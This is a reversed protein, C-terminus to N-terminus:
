INEWFLENINFRIKLPVETESNYPQETIIFAFPGYQERVHKKSVDMYEVSVHEKLALEQVCSWLFYDSSYTCIEHPIFKQKFFIERNDNTLHKIM